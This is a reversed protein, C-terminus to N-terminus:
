FIYMHKFKSVKPSLEELVVPVIKPSFLILQFLVPVSLIWVPVMINIVLRRHTLYLMVYVVVSVFNIVILLVILLNIKKTDKFNSYRIKRTRIALCSIIMLFIILYALLVSILILNGKVVPRVHVQIVDKFNISHKEYGPTELILIPIVIVNLFITLFLIIVFLPVNSWYRGLDTRLTSQFIREVRLLKVFLTILILNIANIVLAFILCVIITYARPSLVFSDRTIYLIVSLCFLYCGAFMLLSVYPSTAKVTMHERYYLYVILQITTFIIVAGTLIYLLITVPYPILLFEHRRYLTDNPLKSANIHVHFDSPKLPNYIGVREQKGDDLIWFVEVPTSVSRYQNFEVWGGAGQFSLNAMQEEIVATINNQGITYSDISLNRSKLIPLSKNMALALAWIQDYWFSGDFALAYLDRSNYMQQLLVLDHSHKQKFTALTEGSILIKNENEIQTPTNLYIHGLTANYVLNKLPRHKYYHQMKRIHIWVYNPYLLGNEVTASLLAETQPIDLLSVLVTTETDKISSIATSRYYSKTVGFGLSFEVVKNTSSKISLELCKAIESYFVSRTNYVIGIRTWNYQDLIALVTDSYVIASGLFRWLHPFRNNQTEFIPSNASSLQILDFGDHGAVPSLVSTHSSCGLGAVAVVPHCPPNLTYKLLNSLGVGAELSSCDEITDVILEIHYGPLLDTHNNIEDRAIRHGSLGPLARPLSALTLVYLPRTEEDAPCCTSSCSAVLLVSPQWCLLLLLIFLLEFEMMLYKHTDGTTLKCIVVVNDRSVPSTYPYRSTHIPYISLM